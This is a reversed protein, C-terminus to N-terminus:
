EPPKEWKAEPGRDPNDYRGQLFWGRLWSSKRAIDRLPRPVAARSARRLLQRLSAGLLRRLESSPMHGAAVVDIAPLYARRGLQANLRGFFSGVNRRTRSHLVKVPLSALEIRFPIFNFESGIAAYRLTSRWLAARLSKQDGVNAYHYHGDRNLAHFEDYCRDWLEFFADASPGARFGLVGSNMEPFAHPIGEMLYDQGESLQVGCAEFRELLVFLESLDGGVHTDTDLYVFRRYPCRRMEIKDRFGFRPKELLVLDDWFPEITVRDTVLCIPHRPHHRRLGAASRRAEELYRAGTAVYVFGNADKNM